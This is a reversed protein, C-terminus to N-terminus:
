EVVRAFVFKGTTIYRFRADSGPHSFRLEPCIMPEAETPFFSESTAAKFYRKVYPEADVGGQEACKRFLKARLSGNKATDVCLRYSSNDFIGMYRSPDKKAWEVPTL